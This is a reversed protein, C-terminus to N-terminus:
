CPLSLKQFSAEHRVKSHKLVSESQIWQKFMRSTGPLVSLMCMHSTMSQGSFAITAISSHELVQGHHTASCNYSQTLLFNQDGAAKFNSPSNCDQSLSTQLKPIKSQLNDATCEFAVQYNWMGCSVLKGALWPQQVLATKAQSGVM